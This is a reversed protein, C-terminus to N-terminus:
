DATPTPRPERPLGLIREGIINRLINTTGGMITYAPSYCLGQSVRNWLLGDAGAVATCFQAVSTEFETCFTKTVASFGAPAQGTAERIVLLRGIRYGTEIASIRQRTLADTTDARPLLERYLRLNSVLRDIGGREHEMQRMVQSFSGNLQGVQNADPVEVDDFRVECFHSGGIMDVIPRVDIGPSSMDVIFESLGKHPAAQPDTRAILYCWDADLAGSTWIKSGNVVWTDNGTPAASTRLSAVDSGADPESMGICWASSGEIIGPLFQELQQSSGFQILTPGIQRDAFWSTALPAGESILTEFIVLREMQTRGAGGFERPWTLGLWGARGLALSFRRSPSILWSNESLEADELNDAVLSRAQRALELLEFPETFDM